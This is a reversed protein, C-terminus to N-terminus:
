TARSVKLQVRQAVADALAFIEIAANGYKERVSRFCGKGPHAAAVQLATTYPIPRPIAKLAYVGASIHDLMQRQVTNQAHYQTIVPHVTLQASLGLDDALIFRLFDNLTSYSNEELSTPAIIHRVSRLAALGLPVPGAPCDFLIVDYNKEIRSLASKLLAAITVDIREKRKLRHLAGEFDTMGGLLENNSPIM